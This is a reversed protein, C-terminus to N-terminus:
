PLLNIPQFGSYHMMLSASAAPEKANLLNPGGLLSLAYLYERSFRVLRVYCLHFCSLRSYLLNRIIAYSDSKPQKLLLNQDIMQRVRRLLKTAEDPIDFMVEDPTDVFKIAGSAEAAETLERMPQIYQEILDDLLEINDDAMEKEDPPLSSTGAPHPRYILKAPPSWPLPLTSSTMRAICGQDISFPVHDLFTEGPVACNPDVYYKLSYSGGVASMVTPFLTTAKQKFMM